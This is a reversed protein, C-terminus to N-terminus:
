PRTSDKPIMKPDKKRGGSVLLSDTDTRNNAWAGINALDNARVGCHLSANRFYNETLFVRLSPDANDIYIGYNQHKESVSDGLVNKAIYVDHAFQVYIGGSGYNNWIRNDRITINRPPQLKASTASIMVGNQDNSYIDSNEITVDSADPGVYVGNIHNKVTCKSITVGSTYSVKFGNDLGDGVTTCGRFMVPPIRLHGLSDYSASLKAPDIQGSVVFGVPCLRSIVREVTIRRSFIDDLGGPYVKTNTFLFGYDGPQISVARQCFKFSCDSIAIDFAAATAIGASAEYGLSDVTVHSIMINHPHTTVKARAATDIFNRGGWHTMIARGITESAPVHIMQIVGDHCDGLVAIGDADRRESSITLDHIAWGSYGVGTAYSGVTVAAGYQGSGTIATTSDVDITGGFIQASDGGLVFAQSQGGIEFRFRSGNLDFSCNPPILISDKIYTLYYVKDTDCVFQVHHKDKLLAELAVTVDTSDGYINHERLYYVGDAAGVNSLDTFQALAVASLLVWM